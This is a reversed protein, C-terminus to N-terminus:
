YGLESMEKLIVVGSSTGIRDAGAKLMQTITDYDRIGGSAKIKVNPDLRARMLKIHAVTAGHTGFGTSTKAYDIYFLNCLTCLKIIEDNTLYCTEFILKMIKGRMRISTSIMDLESEVTAWDESKVAAINVVVDLEEAGSEIAKKCEEVKAAIHQYGLPFGIVTSLGVASDGLLKYCTDLYYPPVCATAFQHELAEDCLNKLDIVTADPKLITHDITSAIAKQDWSQHNM